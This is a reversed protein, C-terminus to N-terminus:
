RYGFRDASIKPPTPNAERDMEKATPSGGGGLLSKLTNFGQSFPNGPMHQSSDKYNAEWEEKAKDLSTPEEIKGTKPRDTPGSVGGGTHGSVAGAIGKGSDISKEIAGAETKGRDITTGVDVPSGEPGPLSGKMQPIIGRSGTYERILDGLEGFRGTAIMGTVVESAGIVAERSDNGFMGKAMWKHFDTQFDIGSSTLFQMVQSKQERLEKAKSFSESASESYSMARGIQEAYSSLRQYAEREEQTKATAARDSTIKQLNSTFQQAHRSDLSLTTQTGSRTEFMIDLGGKVSPKVRLVNLEGSVGAGGSLRSINQWGKIDNIGEVRGLADLTTNNLSSQIDTARINTLSSSTASDRTISFGKRIDEARNWATQAQRTFDKGQHQLNSISSGYSAEVSENIKGELNQNRVSVVGGEGPRTTIEAPGVRDGIQVIRNGVPDYVYDTSGDPSSMKFVSQQGAVLGTKDGGTVAGALAPLMAGGGHSITGTDKLIDSGSQRTRESWEKLASFDMISKTFGYQSSIVSSGGFSENAFSKNGMSLNGKGAVEGGVSQATGTVTGISTIGRTIAYAGGSVVAWALTPVLPALSGVYGLTMETQEAIKDLTVMTPSKAVQTIFLNSLVRKVEIDAFLNLIVYFPV